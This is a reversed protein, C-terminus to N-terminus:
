TRRKKKKGNNRSNEWTEEWNALFLQATSQRSPKLCFIAFTRRTCKRIIAFSRAVGFRLRRKSTKGNCYHEKDGGVKL